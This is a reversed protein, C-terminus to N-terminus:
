FRLARFNCLLLLVGCTPVRRSLEQLGMIQTRHVTIPSVEGFISVRCVVIYTCVVSQALSSECTVMIDIYPLYDRTEKNYYSLMLMLEKHCLGAVSGKCLGLGM